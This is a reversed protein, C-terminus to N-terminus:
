RILSRKRIERPHKMVRMEKLMENCVVLKRKLKYNQILIGTVGGDCGKVGSLHFHHTTDDEKTDDCRKSGPNSMTDNVLHCCQKVSLVMILKGHNLATRNQGATKIPDM